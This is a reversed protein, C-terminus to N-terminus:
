RRGSPLSTSVPNAADTVWERFGMRECAIHIGQMLDAVEIPWFDAEMPNETFARVCRESGFHRTSELELPRKWWVHDYMVKQLEGIAALSQYQVVAERGAASLRARLDPVLLLCALVLDMNWRNTNVVPLNYVPNSLHDHDLYTLVPKGLALCELAFVGYAGMVFQDAIIDATKYIEIAETRPVGEVLKLEFSIGAERIKTLSELLFRTGKVNRHNPAHIILPCSSSVHAAVPKLSDTDVPITKCYVDQRPLFRRISGDQCIILDSYKCFLSIVKKTLRYHELLDWTPYDKQIEGIWDFRDRCRDRGAGDTGYSYAIIRVGCLRMLQFILKNLRYYNCPWIPTFSSHWIDAKVLIMALCKWYKDFADQQSSAVVFDFERETTLDYVNSQKAYLVLSTALTGVSRDALVSQRLSHLPAIGHVVRPELRLFWRFWRFACGLVACAIIVHLRALLKFCRSALFLWRYQTKRTDNM